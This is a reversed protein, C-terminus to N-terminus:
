KISYYKEFNSYQKILSLFYKKVLKLLNFFFLMKSIVIIDKNYKIHRIKCFTASIIRNLYNVYYRFFFVQSVLKICVGSNVLLNHMNTFYLINNLMILNFIELFFVEYMNTKEHICFIKSCSRKEQCDLLM